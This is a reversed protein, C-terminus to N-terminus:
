IRRIHVFRMKFHLDHNVPKGVGAGVLTGDLFGVRDGDGAGVSIGELDGVTSGM